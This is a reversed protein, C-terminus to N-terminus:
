GHGDGHEGVPAGVVEFADEGGQDVLCGRQRGSGRDQHHVVIGVPRCALENAGKGVRMQPVRVLGTGPDGRRPVSREVLGGVSVREHEDVVVLHWARTPELRMHIGPPLPAAGTDGTGDLRLEVAARM